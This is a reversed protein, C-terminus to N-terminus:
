VLSFIPFQHMIEGNLVRNLFILIWFCHLLCHINHRFHLEFCFLIIIVNVSLFLVFISTTLSIYQILRSKYFCPFKFLAIVTTLPGASLFLILVVVVQHIDPIVIKSVFMGRSFSTHFEEIEKKGLRKSNCKGIKKNGAPTLAANSKSTKMSIENIMREVYNEM